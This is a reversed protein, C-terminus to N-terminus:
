DLSTWSLKDVYSPNWPFKGDVYYPVKLLIRLLVLMPSQFGALCSILVDFVVFANVNTFKLLNEFYSRSSFFRTSANWRTTSNLCPPKFTFSNSKIYHCFISTFKTNITREALIHECISEFTSIFFILPPMCFIKYCIYLLSYKLTGLTQKPITIQQSLYM